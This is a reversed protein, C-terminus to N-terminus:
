GEVRLGPKGKILVQGKVVVPGVFASRVVEGQLFSFLQRSAILLEGSLTIKEGAVSPLTFDPAPDGIKVKLKSDVPKLQGPNYINDKFAASAGFAPTILFILISSAIACSYFKTKM